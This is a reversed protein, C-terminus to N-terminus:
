SQYAFDFGSHNFLSLKSLEPQLLYILLSDGWKNVEGEQEFYYGEM